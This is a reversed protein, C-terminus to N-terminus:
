LRGLLRYLHNSCAFLFVPQLEIPHRLELPPVRPLAFARQMLQRVDHLAAAVSELLQHFGDFVTRQSLNRRPKVLDDPMVPRANLRSAQTAKEVPLSAVR